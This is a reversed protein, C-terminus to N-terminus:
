CSKIAYIYCLLMKGEEKLIHLSIFSVYIIIYDALDMRKYWPIPFYVLRSYFKTVAFLYTFKILHYCTTFFGGALASSALSVNKIRPTAFLQVPSLMCACVCPKQSNKVNETNKLATSTLIGIELCLSFIVRQIERRILQFLPIMWDCRMQLNYLYLYGQFHIKSLYLEVLALGMDEKGKIDDAHLLAGLILCIITSHM